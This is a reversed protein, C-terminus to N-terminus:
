PWYLYSTSPNREKYLVCIDVSVFQWLQPGPPLPTWKLHTQYHICYIEHIGPTLKLSSCNLQATQCLIIIKNTSCICSYSDHRQLSHPSIWRAATTSINSFSISPDVDARTVPLLTGTPHMVVLLYLLTILESHHGEGLIRWTWSWLVHECWECTTQIHNVHESGAAWYAIKEFLICLIETSSHANLTSDILTRFSQGMWGKTHKQKV